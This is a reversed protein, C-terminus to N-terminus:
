SQEDILAVATDAVGDSHALNQASTIHSIFTYMLWRTRPALHGTKQPLTIVDIARLTTKQYVCLAKSFLSSSISICWSKSLIVRM